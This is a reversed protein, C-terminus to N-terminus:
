TFPSYIDTSPPCLNVLPLIDFIYLSSDWPNSFWLKRYSLDNYRKTEQETVTIEGKTLDLLLSLKSSAHWATLCGTRAPLADLTTRFLTLMLVHAVVGSM